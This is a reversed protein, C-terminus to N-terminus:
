LQFSWRILRKSGHLVSSIEQDALVIRLGDPTTPGQSSLHPHFKFPGCPDRNGSLYGGPLVGGGTTLLDRRNPRGPLRLSCVLVCRRVNPRLLFSVDYLLCQPAILFPRYAAALVTVVQSLGSLRACAALQRVASLGFFLVSIFFPLVDEIGACNPTFQIQGFTPNLQSVAPDESVDAFAVSM